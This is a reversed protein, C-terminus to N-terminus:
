FSVSLGVNIIRKQPYYQGNGAGAEPDMFKIKSLTALNFGNTYVRMSRMGLRDLLDTPLNYGIEVTKLRIYDTEELFYTNANSAWYEDGRNWTRPDTTSPRDPSGDGDLDGIWRNDAFDARFNGIEGSETQTYVVGGTAGQFFVIFDFNKYSASFELGGTFKPVDTKDIRKRDDATIEGDGNLDKFIVDGPRAGDWHASNDIEDQTQYIGDAVYYLSTFMPHGTSQQWEPAGPAEDWFKIENLAYTGNLTVDYFFDNGVQNRYTISGDYGWSRVEGINERPLTLGSTQPVSANRWWLIDERLYDYYDFTLSINDNLMTADIGVDLQNAVEWTVEPNPVRTQYVSPQISGGGMVRGDGFGYPALYQFPEIRDNGTQGWSARLKLENIFGVNDSFFDEESIRWGASFAPFFGFRGEEPFIYSGDYRGVFEFLYKDQYDYNVRTFYNLRAGSSASGDNDKESDGGAFMQDVQDSIYYRRFANFWNSKFRTQETGLLFSTSHDGFDRQYEAVLNLLVNYGESSEQFLRPEPFGRPAGTLFQEPDANDGANQYAGSDFQYLTWPTQWNKVSQFNKDYSVNARVGLGEVGPIDVDLGLNSQFYYREDDSYGTEPTAAVVPNTGNEIDPGPLGNPWRAPLHPKGRMTFRFISGASRNPFNRDELRGSVDFRLSINDNIQGDINSRFNYQNYRTASNEYFGDETLGGFSLFYSVNESGGSVSMDAKTQYSMPKLVEAFWDTDPYLWPDYEPHDPNGYRQIEDETYSLPRGRYHDIENLMSLYQQADAMEPIRTPQNFGQNFKLNFQPGGALSTGRKTTVLIVGNAAQSGYIAATADKLVSISEINEPNLRDLGGSRNPVGDIVVLPANTDLGDGRDDDLTSNGRIRITSGDYGPEGSSNVTVLGPIRGGLTNSVNSTPVKELDEGGVASVSGTLTEKEREGYGVVVLEEGSVTQPMLTVDISTRGNIPVEQRQFGVFSFILTDQLSPVNLEWNGDVGSTTGTTTGKVIINVGPITEGENDTVQGSVTEMNQNEEKEPVEARIIGFLRNDLQKLALPYGHIVNQVGKMISNETLVVERDIRKSELLRDEYLFVVDYKKEIDALADSLLTGSEVLHVKKQDNLTFVNDIKDQAIADPVLMCFVVLVSFISKLIKM